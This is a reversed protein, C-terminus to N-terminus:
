GFPIRPRGWTRYELAEIQTLGRYQGVVGRATVRQGTDVPEWISAAYLQVGATTDQLFVRLRNPNLVGSGMTVRGAVTVTDGLRDPVFDGDADRVAEGIPITNVPISDAPPVPARGDATPPALLVGVAMLTGFRAAIRCGGERGSM